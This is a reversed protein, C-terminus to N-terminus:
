QINDLWVRPKVGKLTIEEGGASVEFIYLVIIIELGRIVERVRVRESISPAGGLSRTSAAWCISFPLGIILV